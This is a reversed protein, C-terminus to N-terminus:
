HRCAPHLHTSVARLLRVIGWHPRQQWSFPEPLAGYMCRGGQQHMEGFCGRFIAQPYVGAASEKDVIMACHRTANRCVAASAVSLWTAVSRKASQRLLFLRCAALFSRSARVLASSVASKISRDQEDYKVVQPPAVLSLRKSATASEEEERALSCRSSRAQFTVNAPADPEPTPPANTEEALKELVQARPTSHFFLRARQSSSHM